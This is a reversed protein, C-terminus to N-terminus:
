AVRNFQSAANRVTEIREVISYFQTIAGARTIEHKSFMRLLRLAQLEWDNQVHYEPNM